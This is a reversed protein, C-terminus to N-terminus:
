EKGELRKMEQHAARLLDVCDQCLPRYLWPAGRASPKDCGLCLTPPSEWAKASLPTLEGEQPKAEPPAHIEQEVWYKVTDFNAKQEKAHFRLFDQRGPDEVRALQMATSFPIEGLAVDEQLPEPWDMALLRQAVYGYSKSIQFAIQETTLGFHEKLYAFFRGEDLVSVDERHINESLKVYEAEDDSLDRIEARITKHGLKLCAIARRAGAVIEYEDGKPRVIIPHILGHNKISEMLEGLKVADVKSRIDYDGVNIKDLEIEFVESSMVSRGRVM